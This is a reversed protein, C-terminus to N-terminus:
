CGTGDVASVKDEEDQSVSKKQNIEGRLNEEDLWLLSKSDIIKGIIFLFYVGIAVIVIKKVFKYWTYTFHSAFTSFCVLIKCRSLNIM